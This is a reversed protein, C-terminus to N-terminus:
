ANLKTSSGVTRAHADDEKFENVWRGLLNPNVELSRAAAAKTYNVCTFGRSQRPSESLTIGSDCVLAPIKGVSNKEILFKDDSWPDCWCLEVSDELDKELMVIRVMRAYPSTNNMLRAKHKYFSSKSIHQEFCFDQISLNSDNQVKFLALWQQPTRRM